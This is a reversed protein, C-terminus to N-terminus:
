KKLVWAVLIGTVGITASALIYSWFLNINMTPVIFGNWTWGEFVFGMVGFGTVLRTLIVLMLVQVVWRFVGLTILNIPLLLLKIIPKVIRDLLTMVGSAILLTQLGGGYAMGPFVLVAIYLIVTSLFWERLIWKM